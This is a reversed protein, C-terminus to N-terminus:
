DYYRKIINILVNNDHRTGVTTRLCGNLVANLNKILVGNQKIFAFLANADDVKFLIFNAQSPFVTLEDIASLATFLYQRENVISQANHLFYHQSLLFQASVQTLTSINYPMRLKDLECVTAQSGILVGLRLGAFGLKSLTRLVVLNDYHKIDPLFSDEAYAYYAEDLVVLADTHQIIQEIRWRSFANGSPNNPRDIFILKPKIEDITKLTLPLNIDFNKDLEISIYDLRNFIAILQYMVFSPSFGLIRDGEACALALIQILEDSGNGLMIQLSNDIGMTQKIQTKLANAQADPYRNIPTNAYIDLLRRQVEEPMPLPNEMADLKILGNSDDVRYPNLNLIDARLWNQIFSM